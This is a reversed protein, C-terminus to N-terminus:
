IDLYDQLKGFANTLKILKDPYLSSGSQELESVSKILLNIKRDTNSSISKNANSLNLKIMQYKSELEDLPNTQNTQNTYGGVMNLKLLHNLPGTIIPGQILKSTQDIQKSRLMAIQYSSLRKSKNSKIKPNSQNLEQDKIIQNSLHTQVDQVYSELIAKVDPGSKTAFYASIEVPQTKIWTDFGILKNTQDVKWGLKKLIEYKIGPNVTLLLTKLDSSTEVQKGFIKIMSLASKGLVSYFYQSCTSNSNAGFMEECVQTAVKQAQDPNSELWLNVSTQITQVPQKTEKNYITISNDSGMEFQYKSQSQAVIKEVSTPKIKNSEIWGMVLATAIPRAEVYSVTDMPKSDILYQIKTKYGIYFKFQPSVITEIKGVNPGNYEIHGTEGNFVYSNAIQPDLISTFGTALKSLLIFFSDISRSPSRIWEGTLKISETIHSEINTVIWSVGKTIMPLLGFSETPESTPQAGGALGIFSLPWKFIEMLKKYLTPPNYRFIEPEKNIYRTYRIFIYTSNFDILDFDEVNNLLFSPFENPSFIELRRYSDTTGILRNDIWAIKKYSVVSAKEAKFQKKTFDLEYIFTGNFQSIVFKKSDKSIDFSLIFDNYEDTKTNIVFEESPNIPMNAHIKIIYIKEREEEYVAAMYTLNEHEFIKFQYLEYSENKDFYFRKIIQKKDLNSSKIESITINGGTNEYCYLKDTYKNYYLKSRDLFQIESTNNYTHL